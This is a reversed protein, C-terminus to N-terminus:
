QLGLEKIYKAVSVQAYNFYERKDLIIGLSEALDLGHIWSTIEVFIIDMEAGTNLEPDICHSLFHGTEHLISFLIEQESKERTGCHISLDDLIFFDEQSNEYFGITIGNKDLFGKLLTFPKSKLFNQLM